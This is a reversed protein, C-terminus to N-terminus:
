DSRPGGRLTELDLGHREIWRYVQRPHTNLLKAARVVNGRTSILAAEIQERGPAVAEFTGSIPPTSAPGQDQTAAAPPGDGDLDLHALEIPADGALLAARRLTARLQRINGPFSSCFLRRGAAASISARPVGADALLHATLVGLDERRKRLPPLRAVHGALRRLLDPRFQAEPLFLDRNTAAIWRVDVKVGEPAGLPYVKQEEIVRLLKAQNIPSMNGIEDLSLTGGDARLIEGVRDQLAGTYAGKRHGFFTSEFLNEPVAGCDIPRYSGARGSM